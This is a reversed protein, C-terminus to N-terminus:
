RRNYRPRLAQLAHTRLTERLPADQITVWRLQMVAVRDMHRVVAEGFMPDSWDPGTMGLEECAMNTALTCAADRRLGQRFKEKTEEKAAAHQGARSRIGGAGEAKGVFLHADRESFLYVGHERPIGGETRAEALRVPQMALLDELCADATPTM